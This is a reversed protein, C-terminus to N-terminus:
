RPYNRWGHRRCSKAEPLRDATGSCTARSPAQWWRARLRWSGSGRVGARVPAQDPGATGNACVMLMSGKAGIAEVDTHVGIVANAGEAEARECMETLAISRADSITKEYAGVRGASSM